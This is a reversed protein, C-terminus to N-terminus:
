SYYVIDYWHYSSEPIGLESMYVFMLEKLSEQTLEKEVDNLEWPMCSYFLIVEGDEGCEYGVRIGTERSIVSAPISGLGSMGSCDDETEDLINMFESKDSSLIKLIEKDSKNKFQEEYFDYFALCKDLSESLGKIADRHKFAFLLVKEAELDEVSFGYGSISSVDAM